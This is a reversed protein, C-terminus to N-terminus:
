DGPGLLSPITRGMEYTLLSLGLPGSDGLTLSLALSAGARQTTSNTREPTGALEEQPGIPCREIRLCFGCLSQFLPQKIYLILLSDLYHNYSTLLFGIPIQPRLFSLRPWLGRGLVM